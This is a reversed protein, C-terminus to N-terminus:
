MWVCVCVGVWGCVDVDVCVCLCMRVCGSLATITSIYLLCECQILRGESLCSPWCVGM